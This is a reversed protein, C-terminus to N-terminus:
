EEPLSAVFEDYAAADMLAAEDLSDIKVAAIFNEYPAQNLLEPQEELVANTEAITGAAATYVSAVAKVSEVVALSDGAGIADDVYPLEVFVIDGLAHQAYDTIGIYAVGDKVQIWEHDQTYKRDVPTM